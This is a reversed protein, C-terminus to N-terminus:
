EEREASWRDVRWYRMARGREDVEARCARMCCRNTDSKIALDGAM